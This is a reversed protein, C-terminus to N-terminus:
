KAFSEYEEVEWHEAPFATKLVLTRDEHIHIPIFALRLLQRM